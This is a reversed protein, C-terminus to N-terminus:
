NRRCSWAGLQASSGDPTSEHTERLYFLARRSALQQTDSMEFALTPACKPGRYSLDWRVIGARNGRHIPKTDRIRGTPVGGKSSTKAVLSPRM